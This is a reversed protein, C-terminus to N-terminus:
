DNERFIIIQSVAYELDEDSGDLCDRKGDMLWKVFICEGYGRCSITNLVGCLRREIQPFFNFLLHIKRVSYHVFSPLRHCIPAMM